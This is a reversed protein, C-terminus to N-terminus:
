EIVSVARMVVDGGHLAEGDFDWRAVGDESRHFNGAILTGPM